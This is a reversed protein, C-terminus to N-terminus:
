PSGLPLVIRGQRDRVQLILRPCEQGSSISVVVRDVDKEDVVKLIVSCNDSGQEVKVSCSRCDLMDELTEMILQKFVMMVASKLSVGKSDSLGGASLIVEDVNMKHAAFFAAVQQDNTSMIGVLLHRTDIEEQGDKAAAAAGVKLATDIDSSYKRIACSERETQSVADSRSQAHFFSALSAATVGYNELISCASSDKVDLMSRLVHHIGVIADPSQLAYRRALAM